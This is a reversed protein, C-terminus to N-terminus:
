FLIQCMGSEEIRFEQIQDVNEFIRIVEPDGQRMLFWNCDLQEDAQVHYRVDTWLAAKSRTVVAFGSTGSFGSIYQLRKDRDAM